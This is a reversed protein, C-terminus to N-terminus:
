SARLLLDDEGPPRLEPPVTDWGSATQRGIESNFALSSEFDSFIDILEEAGIRGLKGGPFRFNWFSVIHNVAGLREGLNVFMSPAELLFERFAQPQGGLLREFANDYVQISNKATNCIRLISRRLEERTKALYARDEADVPGAPRAQAIADIVKRVRPLAQALTWKYYLFGKWCFVGEQYEPKALRLTLRLPETDADVTISLIKQVLRSSGATAGKGDVYCLDILKQIEAEVFSVMRAIDADSIEFYIRAPFRQKRRLHERLLFPDLSPLDDLMHLMAEDALSLGGFMVDATSKFNQQGVMMAWGGLKLDTGDIPIIIKTAIQRNDSFLELEHRRLRHKLIIARNLLHNQFFPKTAYDPDRAARRSIRLLNLVRATSASDQLHALSRVSSDAM